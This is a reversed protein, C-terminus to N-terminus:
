APHGIGEIDSALTKLDCEPNLRLVFEDTLPHHAYVHHILELNVSREYQRTGLAIAQPQQFVGERSIRLFLIAAPHGM